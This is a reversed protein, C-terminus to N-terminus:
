GAAAPPEETRLREATIRAVFKAVAEFVGASGPGRLILHRDFPLESLVKDSSGLRALARRGSVPAVLPDDMSQILLAPATVAPLRRRCAGSARRLERLGHLYDTPYNIEPSETEENSLQFHADSLGVRRMAGNFGLLPGIFIARRDRLVLPANISVVGDLAEGLRAALLLSLTGGLSFGVAVITECRQRLLAHGRAVAEMWQQWRVKTLQDPATGHAPLRVAYVSSGREHLFEGLPRVQLPSSLYGHVLLVGASPRRAELHFPEGFSMPKSEEPDFAAQYDREFAEDEAARLARSTERRLQLASLNVHRRVSAIAPRVPELENALVQTMKELRITHFEHSQSLAARNVVLAGDEQSIVGEKLALAVASDWPACPEGTVLATIGNTLTPHLRLAGNAGLARITLFLAARLDDSDIRDGDFARLASALLHDFSIELNNYIAWMCADTLRRAQKRLFLESGSEQSFLGAVRRALDTVRGVYDTVEIPRGFHVCIETGKLLISGEVTLEEELRPDLDRVFFRALRNIVNRSPRMPYFTLTVPVIVIGDRCIERPSTLGLSEEYFDARRLDGNEVAELYRRKSMEAKLALMAAGTHPPGTREPHTLKLRGRHVTKKNKILGGEPYIVWNAGGTMLEKIITRNRRPHRTSMGGLAEFYRGFLGRFVSHTGLSRVQRRACLYIVYPILFTEIRTFHNAVFITPRAVLNEAGSARLRVGLLRKMATILLGTARYTMLSM